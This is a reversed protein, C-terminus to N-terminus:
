PPHRMGVRGRNPRSENVLPSSTSLMTVTPKTPGIAAAAGDAAVAVVRLVAEGDFGRTFPEPGLRELLDARPSMIKLARRLLDKHLVRFVQSSGGGGIPAVREPTTEKWSEDAFKYQRNTQAFDLLAEVETTIAM